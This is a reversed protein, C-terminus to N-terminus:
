VAKFHNEAVIRDQLRLLFKLFIRRRLRGHRISYIRPSFTRKSEKFVTKACIETSPKVPKRITAM